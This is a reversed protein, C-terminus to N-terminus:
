ENAALQKKNFQKVLRQQNVALLHKAEDPTSFSGNVFIKDGSNVTTGVAAWWTETNKHPGIFWTYGALRKYYYTRRQKWKGELFAVYHEPARLNTLGKTCESGAIRQHSGRVLHFQWVIPTGCFSCETAGYSIKDLEWLRDPRCVSM